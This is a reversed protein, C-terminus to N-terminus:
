NDCILHNQHQQNMENWNQSRFEISWSSKESNFRVTSLWETFIIEFLKARWIDAILIRHNKDIRNAHCSFAWWKGRKGSFIRFIHALNRRQSTMRRRFGTTCPNLRYCSRKRQIRDHPLFTSIYSLETWTCGKGLCNLSHRLQEGFCRNNCLGELFCWNLNVGKRKQMFACLYWCRITQVPLAEVNWNIKKKTM